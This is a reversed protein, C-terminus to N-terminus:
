GIRFGAPAGGQTGSPFRLKKNTIEKHEAEGEAEEAEAEAGCPSGGYL